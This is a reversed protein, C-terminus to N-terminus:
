QQAFIKSRIVLACVRNINRRPHLSPDPGGLVCGTLVLTHASPFFCIFHIFLVWSVTRACSHQGLFSRPASLFSIEFSMLWLYRRVWVSGTTRKVLIVLMCVERSDRSQRFIRQDWLPNSARKVQKHIKRNQWKCLLQLGGQLLIDVFAVGPQHLHHSVLLSLSQDSSTNLAPLHGGALDSAEKIGVHLEGSAPLDCALVRFCKPGAAHDPPRSDPLHVCKAQKKQPGPFFPSPRTFLLHSRLKPYFQFCPSICRSNVWDTMTMRAMM